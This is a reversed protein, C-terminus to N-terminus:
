EDKCCVDYFDCQGSSWKCLSTVHKPYDKKDKSFTKQHILEIERKAFDLLSHDVNVFKIKGEKLFYIGVRDPLKGHKEFFLLAYVALQLRYEEVNSHNSTKYDMIRTEVGHTEIVDVIGRVFHEDSSYSLERLPTLRHFVEGVSGQESDFRQIFYELWNFIMLLTEEFYFIEDERSVGLAVIDKQAFTWEKVLLNQVALRFFGAAGAREVGAVNIGFFKDLVSHAIVGRVQAISQKSPLREIYSYYYKRPCKNYTGMSSPSQVRSPVVVSRLSDVAVAGVSVGDKESM